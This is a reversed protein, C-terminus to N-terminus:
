YEDKLNLHYEIATMCLDDLRDRNPARPLKSTLYALEMMRDMKEAYEVMAEYTWAGARIALLEEADPRKVMVKGTTLIEYGMRMLRVLHMGHKTDYGYKAELESRAPNRQKQWTLYQSWTTQANSFTKEMDLLHIFNADLGIARAANKWSNEETVHIETLMDTIRGMVEIRTAPDLPELDLNWSALKKNIASMAAARQDAPILTYEPLGFDKREPAKKPPNKLWAYHRKIRGLQSVAYGSFTHKAKTSLFAHRGARIIKGAFTEHIIDSDDTFLTEIISPNCDAALNCFKKIDYITCDYPEAQQAQEFKNVFGIYYKLPAVAFGKFDLDSTPLSTGYAHSGSRAVLVTAKALWPMSEKHVQVLDDIKM